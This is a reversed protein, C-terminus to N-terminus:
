LKAATEKWHNIFHDFENKMKRFKENVKYLAFDEDSLMKICNMLARGTHYTCKWIHSKPGFKFNPEKDLGGEFWDGNEHDLIYKDVYEWQKLFTNFYKEENPFIKSMILLVNLGEAQAWWNKTSKIIQCPGDETFYYGGDYFGGVENDFGNEIAHDVMRKATALTKVDNEIGLIHSTELMLFATEYDHGFSVHDLRYFEKRTAEDADRFSIPKWDKTFFLNMYGKPTTIVDRILHLLGTLQTKVKEDKWVNYLETYAELLHISSNQDKYGVEPKDTAKTEYGNSNDFPNGNRLLFQHYGKLVPDFAQKEIWDFAEKAFNLANADNSLEYLAALSYIGFANGYTRKEEGWGECESFKGSRDRVQFFGGYSHDWMFARMFKYGHWAYKEYEEDNLFSAMKSTLWVHRAQTVIMKEQEEPLKWDWTVNTFYGGFEEDIVLPYWRKLIGNQLSDLMEDAITKTINM